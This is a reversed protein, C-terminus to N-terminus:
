VPPAISLAFRRPRCPGLAAVPATRRMARPPSSHAAHDIHHAGPDSRSRYQTGRRLSSTLMELMGGTSRRSASAATTESRAAASANRFSDIQLLAARKGRIERPNNPIGQNIWSDLRRIRALNHSYRSSKSIRMPIYTHRATPLASSLLHRFYCDAGTRRHTSGSRTEWAELRVVRRWEAEDLARVAPGVTAGLIPM